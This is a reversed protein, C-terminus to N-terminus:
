QIEAILVYKDNYLYKGVKYIGVVSEPYFLLLHVLAFKLIYLKINDEQDRTYTCNAFYIHVYM